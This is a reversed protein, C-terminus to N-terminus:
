MQMVGGSVGGAGLAGLEDGFEVAQGGGAGPGEKTHTLPMQCDLPDTVCGDNVMGLGMM